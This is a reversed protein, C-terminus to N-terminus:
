IFHNFRVTSVCESLLLSINRVNEPYRFSVMCFSDPYKAVYCIKGQSTRGRRVIQAMLSFTTMRVNLPEGELDNM